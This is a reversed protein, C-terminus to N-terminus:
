KPRYISVESLSTRSLCSSSIIYVRTCQSLMFSPASLFTKNRANLDGIM